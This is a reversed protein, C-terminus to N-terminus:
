GFLTSALQPFWSAARTLLTAQHVDRVRYPAGGPHGARGGAETLILAGPAHDWPFLRHYVVFDKDAQVLLTYERCSSGPGPVAEVLHSRRELAERADAPMHRTYMTGRARRTPAIDPVTLARGDRWAGAGAEAAYLADETPLYIWGALVEGRVALALMTGFDEHGAVFSRTGDLPDLLWVPQDGAVADLLAPQAAVAEEAVVVSGPLMAALEASLRQEVALDAATVVDDPDAATAKSYVDTAKLRRFRPVVEERAVARVLAGVAVVDVPRM